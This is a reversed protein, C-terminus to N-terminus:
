REANRSDWALYAALVFVWFFFVLVSAKESFELCVLAVSASLLLRVYWALRRYGYVLGCLVGLGISLWIHKSIFIAVSFGVAAIWIARFVGEFIEDSNAM